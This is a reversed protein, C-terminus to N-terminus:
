FDADRYKPPALAIWKANTVGFVKDLIDDPNWGLHKATKFVETESLPREGKRRRLQQPTRATATLGVDDTM